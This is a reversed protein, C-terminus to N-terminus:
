VDVASKSTGLVKSMYYDLAGTNLIGVVVVFLCVVIFLGKNSFGKLGEGLDVILVVFEFVFVGFMLVDLGVVNKLLVIFMVVVVSVCYLGYWVFVM